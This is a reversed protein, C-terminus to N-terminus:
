FAAAELEQRIAAVLADPDCPKLVLSVNMAQIHRRLGELQPDDTTCLVVPLSMTRSDKRLEKLYDWGTRDGAWMFDLVLLEPGIVVLDDVSEHLKEGTTVMFGAGELVARFQTLVDQTDNLVLIHPRWADEHNM